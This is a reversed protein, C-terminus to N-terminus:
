KKQIAKVDKMTNVLHRFFQHIDTQEVQQIAGLKEGAMREILDQLDQVSQKQVTKTQKFVAAYKRQIFSRCGEYNLLIAQLLTPSLHKFRKERKSLSNKGLPRRIDNALDAKSKPRYITAVLAVLFAKKSTVLYQQFCLEALRFEAITMRSLNDGPGYYRCCFLRFSPVLWRSMTPTSNLFFMSHAIDVLQSGRLYKQTNKSFRCAQNAFDVKAMLPTMEQLSLRSWKLLQRRNLEDWSSPIQRLEIKGNPHQVELSIM